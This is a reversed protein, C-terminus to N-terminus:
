EAMGCAAGPWARGGGEAHHVWGPGGEEGKGKKKEASSFRVVMAASAEEGNPEV